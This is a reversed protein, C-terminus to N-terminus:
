FGLCGTVSLTGAILLASKWGSGCCAAQWRAVLTVRPLTGIPSSKQPLVLWRGGALAAGAALSPPVGPGRMGRQSPKKKKKFINWREYPVCIELETILSNTYLLFQSFGKRPTNRKKLKKKIGTFICGLKGLSYLGQFNLPWPAWFFAIGNLMASSVTVSLSHKHLFGLHVLLQNFDASCWYLDNYFYMCM